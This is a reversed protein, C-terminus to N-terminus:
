FDLFLSFSFTVGQGRKNNGGWINGGHAEIINKSLYLGLGTGQFSRSAFKTFLLRSLMEKDIGIGNDKISVIVFPEKQDNKNTITNKKEVTISIIGEDESIFKLSNEILNYIVQGIKIKDANVLYEQNFRHDFKFIIHNNKDRKKLKNEFDKVINLILQNLSFKEKEFRFLKGEIRTVDLIKETLIQLKKSDNIVIDLLKRQESDKLKDRVHETLGIIPTIPTRLEHAVVDIFKKQMKDHLKLHDYAEQLQDYMESQNWLNDFISVYSLATSKSEIFLSLGVAHVFSDNSDDKIEILMTKERDLITIRIIHKFKSQLSRFEIHPYNLKIQKITTQNNDKIDNHLFKVKIGKSALEDLIKLIGVAEIRFFGNDSPVIILVERKVSKISDFMLKLSEKSDPIIRTNSYHGNEIDNIRDEADIGSKWSEKFIM